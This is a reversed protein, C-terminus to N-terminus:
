RTERVWIWVVAVVGVGFGAIFAFLVLVDRYYHNSTFGFLLHMILSASVDVPVGQLVDKIQLGSNVENVSLAELAYKLPCMWQLWRLVEPISNLHVFFGAYTMQYLGTLASLLIALGGDTIALGLLFNFLAMCITYLVLILLFKFFNAAHPALGGMWYTITSVILTPIVRLPIIDFVVRVLLWATPSYYVNSRERVFLPRTALVNHLASLSSLAILSGLFFLVGVRSQFGAISDGTQFYLGGVFVGLLVSIVIHALFFTKDRRLVKWERGALVELQTLFAASSTPSALKKLAGGGENPTVNVVVARFEKDFSPSDQQQQQQQAQALAPPPMHALDLLHDAVNYGPACPSGQTAFYEAPAYGGSGEYLCRGGSLLVIRDFVRYIHSSPQHITAIVATPNDADHALAHLVSVVKSASVSDLGSTPEDLILVDPSSVLELGISVRRMEGGSIGHVHTTRGGIRSDRLHTLSLQEIVDDARQCKEADTVYEPLRLRAAFLIAERVTLMPPLVDQQPVFGIRPTRRERSPDSPFRVSGSTYGMKNKNALVEILTTKGAGSPGLVGLLQGPEVRGSIGDLIVKDDGSGRSGRARLWRKGSSGYSRPIVYTVASWEVAFGGHQSKGEAVYGAGSRRQKRRSWWGILFGLSALAILAGVVALGAIIGGSLSSNGGGNSGSTGSQSDIAGQRVCEGFTCGSLSLGSSGFVAQLVSQQFSCSATGNAALPNCSITLDNNLGNITSTLNLSGGGCFTTGPRCTCQLGSCSWIAGNSKSVSQSCGGATCYFQEVGDYWLQVYVSGSTGFSTSNPQPTLSTNLTRLITLDSLLPYVAQLTPNIVTCSMEGAAYVRPATNCTLTNNLSNQESSVNSSNGGAANFASQCM